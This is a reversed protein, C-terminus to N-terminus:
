LSGEVVGHPAVLTGHAHLQQYLRSSVEVSLVARASGGEVEGSDPAEVEACLREDAVTLWSM